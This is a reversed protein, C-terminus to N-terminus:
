DDSLTFSSIEDFDTDWVLDPNRRDSIKVGNELFYYYHQGPNLRLKIYYEGPRKEKMLYM